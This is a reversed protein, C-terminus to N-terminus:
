AEPQPLKEILFREIEGLNEDLAHGALTMGDKFRSVADNAEEESVHPYFEIFADSGIQLKLEGHGPGPQIWMLYRRRDAPPAIRVSGKQPQVVLGAKESMNLFRNFQEGVGMDVAMRRIAEVTFIPQRTSWGGDHSEDIAERVLLQPGGDLEFVEFSVISIPVGFRGLFGDMRVLGSHIGSGVLLVAIERTGDERALMQNVKVSLSKADGYKHLDPELKTYLEDADIQALSSAYYLAQTLANGTLMDPKIEIVVWRDRFDIALLDLRGDDITLQRGVITLGDAVLTADNAIWDELHKELQIHSVRVKLPQPHQADVSWAVLKPM